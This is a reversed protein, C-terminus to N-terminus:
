YVFLKYTKYQNSSVIQNNKITFYSSKQTLRVDTAQNIKRSVFTIELKPDSLSIPKEDKTFEKKGMFFFEQKKISYDNKNIYIVVSQFATPRLQTNSLSCIYTGAQEKLDHVSFMELYMKLIMPYNKNSVSSVQFIKDNHNLMVNQDGFDVFEVHGVKQYTGNQTKLVMGKYTEVVKKSSANQYLTYELDYSYSSRQNYAQEVKNFLDKVTKIDQSYLRKFSLILFFFLGYKLVNIRKM